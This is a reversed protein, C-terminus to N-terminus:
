GSRSYEMWPFDCVFSTNKRSDIASDVNQSGGVSELPFCCLSSYSFSSDIVYSNVSASAATPSPAASARVISESKVRAQVAKGDKWKQQRLRTWVQIVDEESLAAFQVFWNGGIEKRVHSADKADAGLVAMVDADITEAPADRIIITTRRPKSFDKPRISDGQPSLIAHSSTQAAVVLAVPLDQHAVRHHEAVAAVAPSSALVALPIFCEADMHSVLVADAALHAPSLLVDLAARLADHAASTM